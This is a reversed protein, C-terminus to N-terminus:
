RAETYQSAADIMRKQCSLIRGSRLAAYDFPRPTSGRRRRNIHLLRALVAPLGELDERFILREVTLYIHWWRRETVEAPHNTSKRVPVLLIEIMALAVRGLLLDNGRKGCVLRKGHVADIRPPAIAKIREGRAARAIEGTRKELLKQFHAVCSRTERKLLLKGHLVAIEAVGGAAALIAVKEERAVAILVTVVPAPHIIAARADISQINLTAFEAILTHTAPITIIQFPAPVARIAFIGEEQPVARSAAVTEAAAIQDIPLVYNEVLLLRFFLVLRKKSLHIGTTERQDFLDLRLHIFDEVIGNGLTEMPRIHILTAPIVEAIAPICEGTELAIAALIHTVAHAEVVCLIAHVMRVPSAARFLRVFAHGAAVVEEMQSEAIDAPAVAAIEHVAIIRERAPVAEPAATELLVLVANQVLLVRFLLILIEHRADDLV